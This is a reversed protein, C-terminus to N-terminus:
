WAEVPAKPQQDAPGSDGGDDSSRRRRVVFVAVSLVILLAAFGFIAGIPLGGSDLPVWTLTGTVEGKQGGISIPIEWKDDIVTEKGKDTLNPPDGAGMWHMRHDHWEFRGSKSQEKWNPESGLDQPVASQGQRDENLYYAKSNTNLLVTGDAKVQAYPGNEYDFIEIDKGSTNHLLIRDDFNLIEFNAGDTTPTVTKVVSRYNPNGEHALAVPAAFLLAVLALLAAPKTM